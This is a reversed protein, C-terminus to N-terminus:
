RVQNLCQTEKDTIIKCGKDLLKRSSPLADSVVKRSTAAYSWFLMWSKCEYRLPLNHLFTKLRKLKPYSLLQVSPYGKKPNLLPTMNKRRLRKKIKSSNFTLITEPLQKRSTRILIFCTKLFIKYDVHMIINTDM